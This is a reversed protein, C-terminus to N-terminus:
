GEEDREGAEEREGEACFIEVFEEVDVFGGRLPVDFFGISCQALSVVRVFVRVGERGREWDLGYLGGRRKEKVRSGM